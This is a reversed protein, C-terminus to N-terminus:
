SMKAVSPIAAKLNFKQMEEFFIAAIGDPGSAANNKIEDIADIIDQESFDIDELQGKGGLKEAGNVDKGFKIPDDSNIKRIKQSLRM